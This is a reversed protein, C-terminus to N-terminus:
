GVGRVALVAMCGLLFVVARLLAAFAVDVLAAIISNMGYFVDLCITGIRLGIRRSCVTSVTM